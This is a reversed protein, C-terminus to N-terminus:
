FKAMIELRLFVADKADKYYFDGPIFYEGRIQSSLNKSFNYRTNLLFLSGRNKGEGFINSTGYFSTNAMLYMYATKFSINKYPKFNLEANFLQLNSWYAYSSEKTYLASAIESMFTGRSFLPNWSGKENGSLFVYGITLPKIEKINFDTFIYGGYANQYENNYEGTQVAAQGRFTLDSYKYKFYAGFTNIQNEENLVKGIKEEKWIYYPELYIDESIFLHAYLIAGIDRSANLRRNKENIIPMDDYQPNYVGILEVNSKGMNYKLQMGNFYFTRSGDLATGDDILFGEGYDRGSLDFRGAKIEFFDFINPFHIYLNDILIENIDYQTNGGANKIYSRSETGLRAYVAAFDSFEAKVGGSFKFRFYSKEDKGSFGADGNNILYEYRTRALGDFKFDVAFIEGTVFCIAIIAFFLKKM